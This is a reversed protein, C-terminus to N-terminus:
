LHSSQREEPFSRMERSSPCSRINLTLVMLMRDSFTKMTVSFGKQVGRTSNYRGVAASMSKMQKRDDFLIGKREGVNLNMIEETPKNNYPTILIDTLMRSEQAKRAYKSRHRASKKLGLLRAYHQVSRISIVRHKELTRIRGLLSRREKGKTRELLKYLELANKKNDENVRVTMTEAIIENPTDAYAGKLYEEIGKSLPKSNAM